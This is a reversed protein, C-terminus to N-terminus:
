FLRTIHWASVALMSIIVITYFIPSEVFLTKLRDYYYRTSNRDM